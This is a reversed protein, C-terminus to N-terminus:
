HIAGDGKPKEQFGLVNSGEVRLSGFRGPPETGTITALSIRHNITNLLNIFILILWDMGM